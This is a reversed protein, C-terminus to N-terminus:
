MQGKNVGRILVAISAEVGEKIKSKRETRAKFPIITQKANVSNNFASLGLHANFICANYHKIIIIVTVVLNLKDGNYEGKVLLIGLEPYM